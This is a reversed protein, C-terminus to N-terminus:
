RSVGQAWFLIPLSSFSLYLCFPSFQLNPVSLLCVLLGPELAKWGPCWFKGKHLSLVCVAAGWRCSCECKCGPTTLFRSPLTRRQKKSIERLFHGSGRGGRRRGLCGGARERRRGWRRRKSEEEELKRAKLPFAAVTGEWQAGLEQLVSGGERPAWSTDPLHRVEEARQEGWGPEWPWM